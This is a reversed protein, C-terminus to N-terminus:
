IAVEWPHHQLHTLSTPYTVNLKLGDFIPVTINGLLRRSLPVQLWGFRLHLPCLSEQLTQAKSKNSNKRLIERGVFSVPFAKFLSFNLRWRGQTGAKAARSSELAQCPPTAVSGQQSATPCHFVQCFSTSPAVRSTNFLIDPCIHINLYPFTWLHKHQKLITYQIKNLGAVWIRCSIRHYEISLYKFALVQVATGAATTTTTRVMAGKSMHRKSTHLRIKLVFIESSPGDGECCSSPLSGSM